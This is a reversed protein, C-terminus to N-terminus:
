KKEGAKFVKKLPENIYHGLTPDWLVEKFIKWGVYGIAGVTIAVAGAAGLAMRGPVSNAADSTFKKVPEIIHKKTDDRMSEFLPKEITEGKEEPEAAEEEVAEEQSVEEEQASKEIEERVKKIEEADEQREGSVRSERLIEREREGEEKAKQLMEVSEEPTRPKNKESREREGEEKAKQLMDAYENPSLGREPM